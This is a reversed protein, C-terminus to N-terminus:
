KILNAEEKSLPHDLGNGGKVSKVYFRTNERSHLSTIVIGDKNGDLLGLIFSQDGGTDSFPNFRRFTLRQLHLRADDVATAIAKKNIAIGREHTALTKQLGEMVAMLNKKTVDKLLSNYHRELRLFFFLLVINFVISTLTLGLLLYPNTLLQM